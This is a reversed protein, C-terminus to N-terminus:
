KQLLGVSQQGKLVATHIAQANDMRVATVNLKINLCGNGATEGVCKGWVYVMHMM